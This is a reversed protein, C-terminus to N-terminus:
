PPHLFHFAKKHNRQGNQHDGRKQGGTGRSGCRLRDDLGDDDLFFDLLDDFLRDLDLNNLLDHLRDLDLDFFLDLDHDGRGGLGLRFLDNDLAEGGLVLVLGLQGLSGKISGVLALGVRGPRAFGESDAYVRSPRPTGDGAREVEPPGLELFQRTGSIVDDLDGEGLQPLLDEGIEYGASALIVHDDVAAVVVAVVDVVVPDHGNAVVEVVRAHGFPVAVRNGGGHGSQLFPAVGPVAAVVVVVGLDEVVALVDDFVRIPLGSKFFLHPM